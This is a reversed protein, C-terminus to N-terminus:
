EVDDLEPPYKYSFENLLYNRVKFNLSLRSNIFELWFMSLELCISIPSLQAFEIVRVLSSKMKTQVVALGLIM